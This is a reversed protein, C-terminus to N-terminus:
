MAKLAWYTKVLRARHKSYPTCTFRWDPNNVQERWLLWDLENRIIRLERKIAAKTMIVDGEM